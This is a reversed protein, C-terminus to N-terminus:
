DIRLGGGTTSGTTGGITTSGVASGVASGAGGITSGASYKAGASPDVSVPIFAGFSFSVAIVTLLLLGAVKAM